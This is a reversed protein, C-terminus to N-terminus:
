NRLIKYKKNSCGTCLYEDQTGYPWYHLENISHEKGCKNCKKRPIGLIGDIIKDGKSM